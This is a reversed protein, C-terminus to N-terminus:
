GFHRMFVYLTYKSEKWSEELRVPRGSPVETVMLDTPLSNGVQLANDGVIADDTKALKTEIEQLFEAMEEQVQLLEEVSDRVLPDAFKSGWLEELKKIKTVGVNKMAEAYAPMIQYIQKIGTTNELSVYEEVNPCGNHNARCKEM